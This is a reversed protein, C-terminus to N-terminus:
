LQGRERRNPHQNRGDELWELGEEKSAQVEDGALEAHKAEALLCKNRRGDSPRGGDAGPRVIVEVVLRRRKLGLM